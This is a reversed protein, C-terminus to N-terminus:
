AMQCQKGNKRERIEPATSCARIYKYVYRVDRAPRAKCLCNLVMRSPAVRSKMVMEDNLSHNHGQGLVHHTSLPRPIPLFVSREMDWLSWCTMHDCKDSTIDSGVLGLDIKSLM